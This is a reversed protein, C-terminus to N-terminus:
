WRGIVMFRNYLPVKNKGVYFINKISNKRVLEEEDNVCNIHEELKFYNNSQVVLIPYEPYNKYYKKMKVIDEMHESSTNIILQRRRVENREFYDDFMAIKFKPNFHSIYQALVKKCTEDLEYFDIQKIEIITELMEILPYGFWGGIIEIHSPQSIKIKKLEDILWLKSTYQGESLSDEFSNFYQECNNLVFNKIKFYPSNRYNEIQYSENM